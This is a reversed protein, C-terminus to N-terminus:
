IFIYCLQMDDGSVKVNLFSAVASGQSNGTPDPIAKLLSVLGAM